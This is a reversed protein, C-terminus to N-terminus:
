DSVVLVVAVLWLGDVQKEWPGMSFDANILSVETFWPRACVNAGHKGVNAVRVFRALEICNVIPRKVHHWNICRDVHDARSCEHFGDFHKMIDLSAYIM